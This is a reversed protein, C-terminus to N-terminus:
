PRTECISRIPTALPAIMESMSRQRTGPQARMSSSSASRKVEIITPMSGDSMAMGESASRISRSSPSSCASPSISRSRSAIISASPSSSSARFSFSFPMASSLSLGCSWGSCRSATKFTRLLGNAHRTPPAASLGRRRLGYQVEPLPKAPTDFECGEGTLRRKTERLACAAGFLVVSRRQGDM